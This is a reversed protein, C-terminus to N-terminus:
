KRLKRLFLSDKVKNINIVENVNENPITLSLVYHEIKWTTNNKILVGSGRYVGMWTDLLEDFWAIEVDKYVYVTREVPTFSWAKGKDFFPKSFNKFESLTWNESADTGIFVGTETMAEFYTEFNAEAASKHWTDLVTSIVEKEIAVNIEKRETKKNECSSFLVIFFLLYTFKRM